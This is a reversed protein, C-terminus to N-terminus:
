AKGGEITLKFPPHKWGEGAGVVDYHTALLLTQKAEADLEIVVNLRPKRDEAEANYVEVPFGLNRAKRVILDVCESYNSKSDSNTDLEVLKPLLDIDM